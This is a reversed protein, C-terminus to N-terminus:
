AGLRIADLEREQDSWAAEFQDITVERNPVAPLGPDHFQVHTDSYATVVVAHGAYYDDTSFKGANVTVRVLYGQDIFSRVDDMTPQKMETIGAELLKKMRPIEAEINTHEIGWLGSKEGHVEIMYEKPREIFTRFDFLEYHVVEYGHEKFWVLGANAWTGLGEEYGTLEAWEDMEIHFSPDFYKAISM